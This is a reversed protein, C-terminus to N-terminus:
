EAKRRGVNEGDKKFPIVNQHRMQAVGDLREIANRFTDPSLRGYVRRVLKSDTHGLMQAVHMEPISMQCCRSAFTRRLDKSTFLAVGTSACWRSASRKFNSSTWVPSFLKAGDHKMREDVAARAGRTLPVWRTRTAAKTGPILVAGNPGRIPSFDLHEDKVIKHMEGIDCGTWIMFDFWPRRYETMVGRVADAEDDTLWRDRPRYIEAERLADPIIQSPEGAFLGLKKAERLGMHLPQLDKSATHATIPTGWPTLEDLREDLFREGVAAVNTSPDNFDVEGIIRELHGCHIRARKLTAEVDRSRSQARRKKARLALTLIQGTFLPDAVRQRIALEIRHFEQGAIRENRTRLSPRGGGIDRFDAKYIGTEADKWYRSM